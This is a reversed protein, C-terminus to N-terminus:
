HTSSSCEEPTNQPLCTLLKVFILNIDKHIYLLLLANLRDEGVTSRSKSKIYKLTSNSREVGSSTVATLQILFLIKVINPYMLPSVDNNILTSSIDNPKNSSTAWLRKWLSIEQWLSSRSPLDSNYCELLNNVIDDTLQDINSPILYIGQLAQKSLTNFRLNLQQLMLDAFPLYVSRRFYEKSNEAPVNNRKTQRGCRRPIEIATGAVQAMSEAMAFIRDFESESNRAAAITDKVNNVLHYAQMVDM